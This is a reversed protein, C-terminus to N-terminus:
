FIHQFYMIYNPVFITWIQPFIAWFLSPQIKGFKWVKTKWFFVNFSGRYWFFLDIFRISCMNLYFTPKPGFHSLNSDYLIWFPLLWIKGPSCIEIKTFFGCSQNIYWFDAFNSLSNPLFFHWNQSLVPMHLILFIMHSIGSFNALIDMKTSFLCKSRFQGFVPWVSNKPLSWFHLKWRM